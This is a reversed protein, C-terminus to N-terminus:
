LSFHPHRLKIEGDAYLEIKSIIRKLVSNEAPSILPRVQTRVHHLLTIERGSFLVGPGPYPETYYFARLRTDYGIPAFYGLLEDDRMAAIDLEITRATVRFGVRHLCQEVIASTKVYAHRRLLADIIRYRAIAFKNQPM